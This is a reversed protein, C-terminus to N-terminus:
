HTTVDLEMIIKTRDRVCMNEFMTREQITYENTKTFTLGRQLLVEWECIGNENDGFSHCKIDDSKITLILTTDYENGALYTGPILSTPMYFKSIATPMEDKKTDRFLTQGISLTTNIECFEKDLEADLEDLDSSSLENQRRYIASNDKIVKKNKEWLQLTVNKKLPSDYCGLPVINSNIYSIHEGANNFIVLQKNIIIKLPYLNLLIFKM